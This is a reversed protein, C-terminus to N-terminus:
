ADTNTTTHFILNGDRSQQISNNSQWSQFCELVSLQSLHWIPLLPSNIVFQKMSNYITTDFMKYITRNLMAVLHINASVQHGSRGRGPSGRHSLWRPCVTCPHSSWSYAALKDKTPQRWMLQKNNTTKVDTTEQRWTLKRNEECWNNTTKMDTKQQRWMLQRNNKPKVDTTQKSDERWNETTNNTTM